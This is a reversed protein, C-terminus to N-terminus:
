RDNLMQLARLAHESARRLPEEGYRPRKGPPRPPPPQCTRAIRGADAIRRALRRALRRAHPIPNELVRILAEIRRALPWPNEAPRLPVSLHEQRETSLAEALHRRYRHQEASLALRALALVDADSGLSAVRPHFRNRATSAGARSHGGVSFRVQWSTSDEPDPRAPAGRSLGPVPRRGKRGTREPAPKLTQAIQAAEAILLRRVMAEVPRLWFRVNRRERRSLHRVAVLACPNGCLAVLWRMFWRATEWLGPVSNEDHDDATVTADTM